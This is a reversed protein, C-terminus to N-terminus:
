ILKFIQKDGDVIRNEINEITSRHIRKRKQIGKKDAYYAM